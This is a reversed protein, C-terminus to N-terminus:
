SSQEIEIEKKMTVVAEQRTTDTTKTITETKTETKTGTKTKTKTKTIRGEIAERKEGGAEM